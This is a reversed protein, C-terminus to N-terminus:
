MGDWEMGDWGMTSLPSIYIHQKTYHLTCTHTNMHSHMTRIRQRETGICQKISWLNIACANTVKHRQVSMQTRVGGAHRIVESVGVWRGRGEGKGRGEGGGLIGLSLCSGAQDLFQESQTSLSSPSPLPSVSSHPPSPLPQLSSPLPSAPPLLPPSLSSHPPSSPPSECVLGYRQTAIIARDRLNPRILM